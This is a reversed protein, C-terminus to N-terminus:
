AALCERLSALARRIASKVSGLPQALRNSLEAHSYGEVFSLIVMRQREPPLRELCQRLARGEATSEMPDLSAPLEELAETSLTQLAPGARRVLDLARYRTLAVMWTEPSGRSPTYHRANQWVQIFAEQVTDAALNSHRTIRLAVAYLRAAHRDYLMRFAARDGLGCAQLLLESPADGPLGAASLPTPGPEDLEDQVHREFPQRHRM